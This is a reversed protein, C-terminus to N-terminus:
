AELFLCLPFSVCIQKMLDKGLDPNLWGSTRSSTVAQRLSQCPPSWSPLPGGGRKQGGRFVRYGWAGANAARASAGSHKGPTM